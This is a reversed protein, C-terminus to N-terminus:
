TKDGKNRRKDRVIHRVTYKSIGFESAIQSYFFQDTEYMELIRSIMQDTPTETQRVTHVVRCPVGNIFTEFQGGGNKLKTSMTSLSIGLAGAAAKMTKYETEADGFSIIIM